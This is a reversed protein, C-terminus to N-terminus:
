HSLTSLFYPVAVCAVSSTIRSTRKVHQISLSVFVCESCTNSSAKGRGSAARVQRLTVKYTCQRDQQSQELRVYANAQILVGFMHQRRILRYVTIM